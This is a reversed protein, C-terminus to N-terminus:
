TSDSGTTNQRPQRKVCPPGLGGPTFRWGRCRLNMGGSGPAHPRFLSQAPHPREPEFAPAQPQLLGTWIVASRLARRLSATMPECISRRMNSRGGSASSSSTTAGLARATWASRSAATPWFPPSPQAPSSAAKIPTSSTRSAMGSLGGVFRRQIQEVQDQVAGLFLPGHRRTFPGHGLSLHGDEEYFAEGSGCGLL